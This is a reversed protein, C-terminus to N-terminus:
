AIPYSGPIKALAARIRIDVLHELIQVNNLHCNYLTTATKCQTINVDEHHALDAVVSLMLFILAVAFDMIM